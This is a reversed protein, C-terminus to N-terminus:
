LMSCRRNHEPHFPPIVAKLDETLRWIATQVRLPLKKAAKAARGTLAV